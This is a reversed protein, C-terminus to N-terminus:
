LKVKLLELIRIQEEDPRTMVNEIPVGDLMLTETRISSLRNIVVPLSWRRNKGEGDNQFLPQLRQVAHWQVYYALMCLFVHARIRRDLHHYIPRIELAVTKLNRFAKEVLALQRYGDVAQQKDLRNKDTDTRIVYCGDLAEECQILQRNVQFQLKGEEIRWSFFKGVKYRALIGGVGASLEQESRRKRSAALKRLAEETKGVLEKRTQTEEAQTRPNKCLLYRIGPRDPDNIEAIAREDFLELQIVKRELLGAIQPHTLATLTKFGLENVESIRKPTLMGRDGAFIIDRLGYEEALRRAQPLATTQDSTNGRLVEVGVPCGAQNTMLGIAIQEHGRKGDRNHGFTVLESGAYEGELYSSTLDYYILCGKGLHRKALTRQIEGQRKLLRDLPLYCHEDVAPRQGCTHGCLEWLATDAYVNTLALKSGQYVIRGIIMALADEGWQESRSYIIRDLGLLRALGLFARSAGYERSNSAEPKATTGNGVDDAQGSLYRKIRAILAAPLKTINSVTRHLVKNKQRYSERILVTRYRKSNRRSIIEEVYM